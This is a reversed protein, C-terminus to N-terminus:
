EHENESQEQEESKRIKGYEIRLVIFFIFFIIVISYENSFFFAISVWFSIVAFIITLHKIINQYKM